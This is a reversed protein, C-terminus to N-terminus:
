WLAPAENEDTTGNGTGAGRVPRAPKGCGARMESNGAKANSQDVRSRPLRYLGLTEYLYKDPYQRYGTGRQQRRRMLWRRLRRDTYTQLWLYIEIVPGQNFYGAWGRLKQNLVMVRTEPESANWQSSTQEHIERMIRLIAKKSPRTGIYPKGGAGYFRGITYGLFDFSEGPVLVVKTKQENVKLGIKEMVRTMAKRAEAGKGSRCCIVFDDAYNVIVSDFAQEHGLQKWALVFRRFYVNALLPSIVGGQPTGRGTDKAPTSRVMRGDSTREEVPAELWRAIVSLVQGDAIRRSLSKMLAGHPVTNFYDSLDADVVEQRGKQRVQYYVLRVATKADRGPRFGMQEDCLDAEFIPGLVMVMAMQVVRDRVTPIGLPRQGGNSKPIWVRLLPQARYQKTRLEEQLKGLWAERGALEIREFTEADVGASGGNRRCRQYAEALFDRRCVKDWLSYFRYSPETKAKAQLSSQLKRVSDSTKLHQADIKM